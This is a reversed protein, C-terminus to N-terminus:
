VPCSPAAPEPTRMLYHTPTEGVVGFGLRAYLERAPNVKLVQLAVPLQEAEAEALISRIVESGLGRRQYAPLIELTSLFLETLRREVSLLGVNEGDVVVIQFRAPDFWQKFVRAQFDEDWGWTQDVYDRMASRHLDYVFNFDTAEAPRLSYM